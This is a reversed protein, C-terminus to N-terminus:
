THQAELQRALAERHFDADGFIVEAAKARRSYLQM